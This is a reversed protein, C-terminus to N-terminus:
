KPTPPKPETMQHEHSGCKPCTLAVQADEPDGELLHPFNWEAGCKRCKLVSYLRGADKGCHACKVGVRREMVELDTASAPLPAAFTKGCGICLWNQGGRPIKGRRMSSFSLTLAVVAVVLLVAAVVAKRM